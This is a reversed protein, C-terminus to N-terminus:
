SLSWPAVVVDFSVSVVHTMPLFLSTTVRIIPSIAIATGPIPSPLQAVGNIPYSSTRDLTSRWFSRPGGFTAMVLAQLDLQNHMTSQGAGASVALIIDLTDSEPLDTTTDFRAMISWSRALLDPVQVRIFQPGRAEFLGPDGGGVVLSLDAHAGWREPDGLGTLVDPSIAREFNGGM